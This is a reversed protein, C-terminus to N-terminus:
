SASECFPDIFVGSQHFTEGWLPHAMTLTFRFLGHGLDTHTVRCVGPTLLAPVGVRLRGRMLHFRRSLFVLTGDEEFVDLSMSLGGDTRELLGGDTGIEKTSRVVREGGGACRHFRREWVVGGHGNAYVRVSTAVSQENARTLPGGFLGALWAHFSGVPSCRLDMRGSYTTDAHAVGFRRQVARPLRAWGAAGVLAPLDLAPLDPPAASRTSSRRPRSSFLSSLAFM